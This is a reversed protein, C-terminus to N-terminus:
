DRPIVPVLLASPRVRDHHITHVTTAASCVHWPYHVQSVGPAPRPNGRFDLSMIRLRLRHGRRFLNATPSLAIAYEVIEGPTVPNASTHPHYPEWPTSQEPDLERHSAKLYGRTLERASGAPDVDDIAVIWSTDPQDIAAHLQLALPGIVETEEAFPATEYALGAVERTQSLPQQVFADSSSELPDPTRSLGGWAHLYFAM